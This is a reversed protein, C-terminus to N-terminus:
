RAKVMMNIADIAIQNKCLMSQDRFMTVSLASLMRADMPESIAGIKVGRPNESQLADVAKIVPSVAFSVTTLVKVTKVPAAM